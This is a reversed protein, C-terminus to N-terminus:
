ADKDEKRKEIEFTISDLLMMWHPKDVNEDGYSKANAIDRELVVLTMMHLYPLLGGVFDCTDKVIYTERGLAYRVSSIVMNGFDRDSLDLWVKEDNLVDLFRRAETREYAVTNKMREELWQKLNNKSVLEM